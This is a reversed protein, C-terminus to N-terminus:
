GVWNEAFDGSATLADSQFVLNNSKVCIIPIESIRFTKDTVNGTVM